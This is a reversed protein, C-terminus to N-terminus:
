AVRRGLVQHSQGKLAALARLTDDDAGRAAPLALLVGLAALPVCKWFRM